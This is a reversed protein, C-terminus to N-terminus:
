LSNNEYNRMFDNASMVRVSDVPYSDLYQKYYLDYIVVCGLLIGGLLFTNNKYYLTMAGLVTATIVLLNNRFSESDKGNKWTLYSLTAVVVAQITYLIIKGDM